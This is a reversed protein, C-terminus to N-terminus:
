VVSKRDLTSDAFVMTITDGSARNNGQYISDEFVHYLTTAMGELRLSDLYGDTFFGRLQNGTMDDSYKTPLKRKLSDSGVKRWGTTVTQAHAQKPIHIRQLIENSYSLTIESGSLIRKGEKIIPKVKLITKEHTRDYIALGCSATQTSDEITVHGIAKYSVGDENPDKVYEIRDATIIQGKQNLHVNGVAVGSDIETFFVLSDSTLDYDNDWVHPNGHSTLIDLKSNFILTDCTLTRGDQTTVVDKYLYAIEKKEIYKGKECDLNLTGKQFTVNGSIFQIKEGHVVKSELIDAKKLRLRDDSWLLSPIMILYLIINKLPM